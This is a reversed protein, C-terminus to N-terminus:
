FYKKRKFSKKQSQFMKKASSLSKKREFSNQVERGGYGLSRSSIFSPFYECMQCKSDIYNNSYPVKYSIRFKRRTKKRSLLDSGPAHTTASRSTM